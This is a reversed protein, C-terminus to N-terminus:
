ELECHFEDATSLINVTDDIYSEGGYYTIKAYPYDRYLSDILSIIEKARKTFDAERRSKIHQETVQQLLKVDEIPMDELYKAVLDKDLM